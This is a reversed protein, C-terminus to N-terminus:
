WENGDVQECDQNIAENMLNLEDLPITGAFRLLQSGPVGKVTTSDTLAKTFELVQQQLSQPMVKLREFVEDIISSNM